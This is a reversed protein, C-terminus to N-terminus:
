YMELKKLQPPLPSVQVLKPCVQVSLELLMPFPQGGNGISLTEFDPMNYISLKKLAPFWTIHESEGRSEPSSDGLQHPRLRELVDKDNRQQEGEFNWNLNLSYIHQKEKLEAEEAEKAGGVLDLSTLELYDQINNLYKLESIRFGIERRVDFLNLAQLSTLRGIRAIQSIFFDDM